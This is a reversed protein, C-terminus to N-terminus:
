YPKCLIATSDWSCRIPYVRCDTENTFSSCAKCLTGTWVCGSYINCADTTGASCTSSTSQKCINTAVEWTCGGVTNCTEYNYYYSCYSTNTSTSSSSSCTAGNWYCGHTECENMYIWSSCSTSTSTSTSTSSLCTPTATATDWYCGSTTNCTTDTIYSSCSTATGTSTGTSTGTGTSTSTSDKCTNTCFDWGCGPYTDCSAPDKRGDCATGSTTRESCLGTCADWLCNSYITCTQGTENTSCTTSTTTSTSTTSSSSRCGTTAYDWYCGSKNYCDYERSIEECTAYTTTSTSTGGTSTGSTSAFPECRNFAWNWLCGSSTNCTADTKHISCESGTISQTVPSCYFGDWSCTLAGSSPCTAQTRYDFCSAYASNFCYNGNWSCGFDKLDSCADRQYASWCEVQTKQECFTSRWTCGTTAKCTAETIQNYCNSYTSATECFAGTWIFGSNICQEQLSGNTTSITRNDCEFKGNIYILVGGISECSAQKTADIGSYLSRDIFAPDLPYSCSATSTNWFGSNKECFSQMERIFSDFGSSATTKYASLQGASVGVVGSLSDYGNTIYSQFGTLTSQDFGGVVMGQMLGGTFDASIAGFDSGGFYTQHYNFIQKVASETVAQTVAKLEDLSILDRSLRSYGEMLGSAISRSAEKFLTEDTLGVDAFRGIAYEGMRTSASRYIDTSFSLGQFAEVAGATVDDFVFSMEKSALEAGQFGRLSGDIMKDLASNLLVSSDFGANQFGSVSGKMMKRIAGQMKGVKEIGVDKLGVVAGGIFPDVFQVLDERSLSLGSFAGLSKKMMIELAFPIYDAGVESRKLGKMANQSLAIFITGFDDKGYGGGELNAILGDMLDGAGSYLDDDGLEARKLAGVGSEAMSSPIARRQATSLDDVKNKSSKIISKSMTKVAKLKISSETIAAGALSLAAVLAEILTQPVKTMDNPDIKDQALHLTTQIALTGAASSTVTDAQSQSLGGESVLAANVDTLIQEGKSSGIALSGPTSGSDGGGGGGGGCTYLLFSLSMFLVSSAFLFALSKTKSM